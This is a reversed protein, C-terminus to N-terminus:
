SKFHISMGPDAPRPEKILTLTSKKDTDGLEKRIHDIISSMAGVTYASYNGNDGCYEMAEIELGAISKKIYQILEQNTKRKPM